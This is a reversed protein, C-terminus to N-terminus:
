TARIPLPPPSRRASPNRDIIGRVRDIAMYFVRCCEKSNRLTGPYGLARGQEQATAHKTGSKLFVKRVEAALAHRESLLLWSGRFTSKSRDDSAQQDGKLEHLSLGLAPGLNFEDLWPKIVQRSAPLLKIQTPIPSM